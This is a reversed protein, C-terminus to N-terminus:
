VKYVKISNCVSWLSLSIPANDYDFLVKLMFSSCSLDEINGKM